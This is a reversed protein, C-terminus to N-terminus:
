NFYGHLFWDGGRQDHFVWCLRGDRDRARWYDRRVDIGDWWGSEIREPGELLTLGRPGHPGAPLRGPQPLLWLPRRASLSETAMAEGPEGRRMALEPRHDPLTELSEVAEDGLRARLCEVLEEWRSTEAADRFLGQARGSATEMHRALLRIHQVPAPLQVTELKQELLRELRSFERTAEGHGLDVRTVGRDRDTLELRWRLVGQQTALLYGSFERLLIRAPHLLVPAAEIEYNLDLDARFQPPPQLPERIDPVRGLAQDLIALTGAGFRRAFGDRPLRVLDGVHRAGIGEFRALLRESFGTCALPLTALEAPLHELKQVCQGGGNMAFWSAARPTPAIATRTAFGLKALGDRLLWELRRAGGFLQLSGRIELLLCSDERVVLPTFQGCWAALRRRMAAERRPEIEHIELEPCLAWAAALSMGAQVGAAAALEDRSHISAQNGRTEIIARAREVFGARCRIDLALRPFEVALWLRAPRPRHPASEPLRPERPSPREEAPQPFLSQQTSAM